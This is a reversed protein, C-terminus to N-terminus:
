GSQFNIIKSYILFKLKLCIIDYDWKFLFDMLNWVLVLLGFLSYNIPHFEFGFFFLSHFRSKQSFLPLMGSSGTPCIWGYEVRHLKRKM